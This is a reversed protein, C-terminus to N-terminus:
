GVNIDFLISFNGKLPATEDDEPRRQASEGCYFPQLLLPHCVLSSLRLSGLLSSLPRARSVGGLPPPLSRGSTVFIWLGCFLMQGTNATRLIVKVM